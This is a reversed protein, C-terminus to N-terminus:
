HINVCEKIAEVPATNILFLWTRASVTELCKWTNSTFANFWWSFDMVLRTLKRWQLSFRSYVDMGRQLQRKRQHHSKMEQGGALVIGAWNRWSFTRLDWFCWSITLWADGADPGLTPWIDERLKKKVGGGVGLQTHMRTHTQTDTTDTTHAHVHACACMCVYPTKRGILM